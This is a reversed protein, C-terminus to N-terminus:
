GETQNETVPLPSLRTFPRRFTGRTTQVDAVRCVGDAGPFLKSIRGVRWCLPPMNEEQLLVLDGLRLPIDPVRWKTRQQLEALYEHQWRRWFHQRIQELRQYRRLSSAKCDVLNPSPLATLPRGLLFHGPTLFQLDNPSSSMPCIPRSNLIAEVQAFLTGIEEYTLHSNGMVRRIHFKASKVGAEWIGGFHPAYTPSFVFKIEEESCFSHISNKNSKLFNGIEKSAAVFNRGNDCFIETPRGRRAVFRRLTLIFAERSLDSVAELHLCKFRLCVFICLYCKTTKAGRGKRNLILFPGAMDVGVSRFPFDVTIRQSPLNGMLPTLTKGQVKRCQLCNHVTSRALRRGNIPWVYNRVSALLLQPGAHLKHLHEREFILKTLYHSSHLLISHKSEFPLSSQDLRGGVRILGSADM